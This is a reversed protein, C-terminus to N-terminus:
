REKIQFDIDTLIVGGNVLMPIKKGSFSAGITFNDWTIQDKVEAPAGAVKVNLGRPYEDTKNTLVQIYCKAGLYKAKKIPNADSEIKWCGLKKSDVPINEGIGALHVSDTDCYIFIDYNKQIVDFLQYRAWATIFASVATYVPQSDPSDLDDEYRVVGYQDLYPIKKLHHPNSAFKGYLSNILLKMLQKKAGTSNCKQEYLPKIYASFLNRSGKFMYGDIYKIDRVIYHDFMLEMDVSTLVLEEMAGGTDEIYRDTSFMSLTDHKLITPFYGEKKDLWVQVRQIYLPYAPDYKYQGKFFVPRGYPLLRECMQYPYMSNVDYVNDVEVPKGKYKPNVFCVGGRYSERIYQDIKIDVVPFLFNYDSGLMAKYKSFTDSASTMKDMGEDYMINLIRAVVETDREVYDVEDPTAEYYEDREKAYDCEGKSIPLGYSEAIERVTGNIKKLSDRFTIHKKPAFQVDISYFVGTDTILATFTKAKAAEKKEYKFGNKLLWSIIFNGDFKLNHFYVIAQGLEEMYSMFEDMNLGHHHALTEINCVDWLWVSSHGLARDYESCRTEFDGVYIHDRTIVTRRM